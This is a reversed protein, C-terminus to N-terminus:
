VKLVALDYAGLSIDVVEHAPNGNVWLTLQPDGSVQPKKVGRLNHACTLVYSIGTDQHFVVGSGGDIVKMGNVVTVLVSNM